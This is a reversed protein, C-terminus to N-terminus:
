TFDDQFCLWYCQATHLLYIPRTLSPKVRTATANGRLSCPVNMKAAFDNIENREM